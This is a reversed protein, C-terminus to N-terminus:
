WSTKRFRRKSAASRRYFRCAISAAFPGSFGSDQNLIGCVKDAIEMPSRKLTKALQFAVNTAYDGHEVFRPAELVIESSFGIDSKSLSNTIIREIERKLM